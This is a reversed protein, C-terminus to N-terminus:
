PQVEAVAAAQLMAIREEIYRHIRPARRPLDALGTGLGGAPIVVDLGRELERRIKNFAADISPRVDDFDADSFFSEPRMDPARKTPVGITNPEGRMERAQGGLGRRQMNDGFVFVARGHDARVDSRTIFDRRVVRGTM